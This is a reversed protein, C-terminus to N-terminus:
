LMGTTRCRCPRGPRRPAAPPGRRRRRGARSAACRRGAPRRRARGASGPRRRAGATGEEGDLAGGVPSAPASAASRAGRKSTVAPGAAARRATGAPAPGAVHEGSVMCWMAASPQDRAGARAAVERGGVGRRAAPSRRRSAAAARGTRRSCGRAARAVEAALVVPSRWRRALEVYQRARQAPAGSSSRAAARGARPAGVGGGGAADTGSDCEVGSAPAAARRAPGAVVVGAQEHHQLGREGDSSSWARRPRPCGARCAPRRGCRRRREVVQDAEEDVGQDQAGVQRPSGM